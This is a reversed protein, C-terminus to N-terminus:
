TPLPTLTNVVTLPHAPDPLIHSCACEYWCYGSSLAPPLHIATAALLALPLSSCPLSFPRWLLEFSSSPHPRSMVGLDLRDKKGTRRVSIPRPLGGAKIKTENQAGFYLSLNALPDGARSKGGYKDEEESDGHSRSSVLVQHSPFVHSRMFVNITGAMKLM